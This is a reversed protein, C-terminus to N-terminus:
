QDGHHEVARAADEGQAAPHSASAMPRRTASRFRASQIPRAAAATIPAIASAMACGRNVLPKLM